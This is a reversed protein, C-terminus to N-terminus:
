PTAPIHDGLPLVPALCPVQACVQLRLLELSLPGQAFLSPHLCCRTDPLLFSPMAWTSVLGPFLSLSAPLPQTKGGM